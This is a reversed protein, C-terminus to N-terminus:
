IYLLFCDKIIDYTIEACKVDYVEHEFTDLATESEHNKQEDTLEHWWKGMLYKNSTREIKIWRVIYGAEEWKLIENPFRTDPILIYDYHEDSSFNIM